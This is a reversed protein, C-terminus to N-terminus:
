VRARHLRLANGIVSVSSFSMAAAAIMPSLLVGFVPYLVGAAIPVGLSNYVFAFFLNQRINRMTARSLTRARAIGNLDGKLLTIGTSEIAVNTGSGMAIGVDAAKLAPADNVGDGTMAVVYGLRKLATVIKMKQEPTTRAFVTAGDRVREILQGERLSDLETGLLVRSETSTNTGVIGCKRAVAEATDPHDGTILLVRIGANHCKAVADPVEERIPDDLALFGSLVLSQELSEEKAKPAPLPGNLNTGYLEGDAWLVGEFIAPRSAQDGNGQALAPSVGLLSVATMAAGAVVLRTRSLM